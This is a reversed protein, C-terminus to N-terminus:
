SLSSCSSFFFRSFNSVFFISFSCLIFVSPFFYNLVSDEQHNLLLNGPNAVNDSIRTKDTFCNLLLSNVSVDESNLVVPTFIGLIGAGEEM